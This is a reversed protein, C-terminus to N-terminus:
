QRLLIIISLIPTITSIIFQTTSRFMTSEMRSNLNPEVYVVDNQHLYFVPSTLVSKSTLDLRYEKKIGNDERVVLINNRLGNMKLDGAMGIADLVSLRQSNINFTGPSKVDGLVTVKFNLIRIQVIPNKLYEKLRKAILEEADTKTLGLVSIKGIVPLAIQGTVDVLYGFEETNDSRLKPNFLSVTENDLDSVQVSIYDDIKIKIPNFVATSNSDISNKNFYVLKEKLKCATFFQLFIFVGILKLLYNKM